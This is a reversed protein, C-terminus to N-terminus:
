NGDRRAQELLKQYGTLYNQRFAEEEMDPPRGGRPRRMVLNVNATSGTPAAPQLTILLSSLRDATGSLRDAAGFLVGSNAAVQGEARLNATMQRLEEIELPIAISKTPLYILGPSTSM